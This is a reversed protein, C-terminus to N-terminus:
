DYTHAFAPRAQAHLLVKRGSAGSRCEMFLTKARRTSGTLLEHLTFLAKQRPEDARRANTAPVSRRNM